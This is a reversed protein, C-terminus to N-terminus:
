NERAGKQANDTGIIQEMLFGSVDFYLGHSLNVRDPQEHHTGHIGEGMAFFNAWWNDLPMGERHCIANVLSNALVSLTVPMCYCFIVGLPGMAIFLTIVFVFITRYYYRQFFSVSKRRLLSRVIQRRFVRLGEDAFPLSWYNLAVAWFGQRTPAHPDGYQDSHAHHLRHFLVWGFPRGHTSLTGFFLCIWEWKSNEPLLGHALGRHYGIAMGFIMFLVYVLFTLLLWQPERIAIPGGVVVSGLLCVFQLTRVSFRGGMFSRDMLELGNHSELITGVASM